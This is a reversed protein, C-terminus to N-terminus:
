FSGAPAAARRATDIASSGAHNGLARRQEGRPHRDGGRRQNSQQSFRTFPVVSEVHAVEPLKRYVGDDDDGPLTVNKMEDKWTRYANDSRQGWKDTILFYVTDGFGTITAANVLGRDVILNQGHRRLGALLNPQEAAACKLRIEFTQFCTTEQAIECCMM